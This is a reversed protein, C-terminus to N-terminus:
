TCYKFYNGLEYLIFIIRCHVIPMWLDCIVVFCQDQLTIFPVSLVLSDAFQLWDLQFRKRILILLQDMQLLEWLRRLRLACVIRYCLRRCCGIFSILRQIRWLRINKGIRERESDILIGIVAAAAAV